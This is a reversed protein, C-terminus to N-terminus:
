PIHGWFRGPLSYFKQSSAGLGEILKQVEHPLEYLRITHEHQAMSPPQLIGPLIGGSGRYAEASRASTRVFMTHGYQVRAVAIDQSRWQYSHYKHIDAQNTLSCCLPTLKSSMPWTLNFCVFRIPQLSSNLLWSPFVQTHPTHIHAHTHHTHIHTHAHTFILKKATLNVFYNSKIVLWYRTAVYMKTIPQQVYMHQLTSHVYCIIENGLWM